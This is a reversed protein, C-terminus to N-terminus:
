VSGPRRANRPVACPACLAIHQSPVPPFTLHEGTLVPVWQPPGGLEDRLREACRGPSPHCDGRECECRDGAREKLQAMFDPPYIM